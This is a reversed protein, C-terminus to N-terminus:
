QRMSSPSDVFSRGPAPHVACASSQAWDTVNFEQRM